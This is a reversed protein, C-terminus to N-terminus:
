KPKGNNDNAPSSLNLFLIGILTYLRSYRVRLAHFSVHQEMQQAQCHYTREKFWVTLESTWFWNRTLCETKTQLCADASRHSNTQSQNQGYSDIHQNFADAFRHRATGTTLYGDCERAEKTEKKKTCEQEYNRGADLEHTWLWVRESTCWVREIYWANKSTKKEM